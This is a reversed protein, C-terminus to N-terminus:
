FENEREIRSSSVRNDVDKHKNPSKAVASM